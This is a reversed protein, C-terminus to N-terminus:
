VCVKEANISHPISQHICIMNKSVLGEFINEEVGFFNERNFLPVVHWYMAYGLEAITSILQRSKEERDNEVYLFPKFRQITKQAGLLVSREMGEVDLKLLQLSSLNLSDLSTVSVQEGSQYSGLALGGFNNTKGYDLKPVFISGESEGVAMQFAFVNTLNNLALNACLTQFVIRQPEFAYVAGASGVMKALPVTHAGINAGVEVVTAGPRVFQRFVHCEGESFEGYVQMSRGIYLDNKNFAMPGYRCSKLENM